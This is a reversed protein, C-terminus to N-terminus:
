EDGFLSMQTYKSILKTKNKIMFESDAKSFNGGKNIRMLEAEQMRESRRTGIYHGKAQILRRARTISEFSPACPANLAIVVNYNQEVADTFLEFFKSILYNDNDRSEPYQSLIYYVRNVIAKIEELM